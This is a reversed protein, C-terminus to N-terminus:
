AAAEAKDLLKGVAQHIKAIAEDCAIYAPTAAGWNQNRVEEVMKAAQAQAVALASSLDAALVSAAGTTRCIEEAEAMVGAHPLQPPAAPAPTAGLLIQALQRKWFIAEAGIRILAPCRVPLEATDFAKRLLGECAELRKGIKQVEDKSKTAKESIRV